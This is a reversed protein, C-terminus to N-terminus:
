WKIWEDNRRKRIVLYAVTFVWFVSLMLTYAILYIVYNPFKHRIDVKEASFRLGLYIVTMSIIFFTTAFWTIYTPEFSISNILAKILMDWDLGVVIYSRLIPGLWMALQRIVLSLSIFLVAIWTISAPIVYIGLLGYKPNFLFSSHKKMTDVFGAYWRTRQKILEVLTEPVMTDVYANLGNKIKYGAKRIRFSIEMDEVLSTEDFGGVQKIVSTRYMGGPGPVVYLANVMSMLRRLYIAFIYEVWQVREVWNKPKYVKMSTTVASVQPDDLYGVMSQLAEPRFFSDGDLCCFYEGKLHKLALNMAAAKGQKPTQLFRALKQKEYNKCVAMVEENVPGNWCLIIEKKPYDVSLCSIVSKKIDDVTNKQYVPIIM